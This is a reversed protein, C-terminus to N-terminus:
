KKCCSCNCDACHRGGHGRHHMGGARLGPGIGWMRSGMGAPPVVPVGASRLSRRLKRYEMRDRVLQDQAADTQESDWGYQAIAQHLAERDKQLQPELQKLQDLQKQQEPTVTPATQSGVSQGSAVSFATGLFLILAIEAVAWVWRMDKKM